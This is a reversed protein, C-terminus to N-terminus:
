GVEGTAPEHMGHRRSGPVSWLDAHRNIGRREQETRRDWSRRIEATRQFIERPNPANCGPSWGSGEPEVFDVPPGDPPIERDHDYDDLDADKGNGIDSEGCRWDLNMESLSSVMHIM